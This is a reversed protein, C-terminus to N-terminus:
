GGLEMFRENLVALRARHSNLRGIEQVRPGKLGKRVYGVRREDQAAGWWHEVQAKRERDSAAAFGRKFRTNM